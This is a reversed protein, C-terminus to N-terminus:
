SLREDLYDTLTKEITGKMPTLVMSLKIEIDVEGEGIDIHGSAGSRKFELRNDSKWSYKASLQSSLKEAIRQVENRVTENDQHHARKIRITAM